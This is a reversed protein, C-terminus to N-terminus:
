LREELMLSNQQRVINFINNLLENAGQIGLNVQLAHLGTLVESQM